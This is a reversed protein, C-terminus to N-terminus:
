IACVYPNTAYSTSSFTAFFLVIPTIAVILTLIVYALASNRPLLLGALFGLILGLPVWLIWNYFLSVFLSGLMLNLDFHTICPKSGGLAYAQVGLFVAALALAAADWNFGKSFLEGEDTCPDNM